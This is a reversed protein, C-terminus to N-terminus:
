ISLLEFHLWNNLYINEFVSLEISVIKGYKRFDSDTIDCELEFQFPRNESVFLMRIRNNKLIHKSVFTFEVGNGLYARNFGLIAINVLFCSNSIRGDNNPEVETGYLYVAEAGYLYDIEIEILNKEFTIIDGNRIDSITEEAFSLGSFLLITLVIESPFINM